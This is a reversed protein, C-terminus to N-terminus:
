NNILIDTGKSILGQQRGSNSVNARLQLGTYCLFNLQRNVSVVYFKRTIYSRVKGVFNPVLKFKIFYFICVHNGLMLFVSHWKPIIIVWFNTPVLCNCHLYREIGLWTIHFCFTETEKVFNLLFCVHFMIDFFHQTSHQVFCILVYTPRQLCSFLLNWELWCTSRRPEVNNLLVTIIQM